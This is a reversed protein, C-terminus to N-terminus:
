ADALAPADLRPGVARHDSVLVYGRGEVTGIAAGLGFPTLTRRLRAVMFDAQRPDRGHDPGFASLMIFDRSLPIGRRTILLHLLGFEAPSVPVPAGGAQITRQDLDLRLTNWPLIRPRTNAVALTRVDLELVVLAHM